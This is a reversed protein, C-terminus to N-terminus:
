AGIAAYYGAASVETRGWASGDTEGSILKSGTFFECAEEYLRIERTRVKTSIPDKWNELNETLEDFARSLKGYTFGSKTVVENELYEKIM